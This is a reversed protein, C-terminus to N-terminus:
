LSIYLVFLDKLSICDFRIYICGTVNAEKIRLVYVRMMAMTITMVGEFDGAGGDQGGM